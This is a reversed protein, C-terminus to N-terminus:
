SYSSSSSITEHYVIWFVCIEGWNVAEREKKGWGHVSGGGYGGCNLCFVRVFLASYSVKMFRMKQTPLLAKLDASSLVERSFNASSEDEAIEKTSKTISLSPSSNSGGSGGGSSGGSNDDDNTALEITNKTADQDSPLTQHTYLTKNLVLSIHTQLM